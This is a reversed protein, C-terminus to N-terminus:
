QANQLHIKGEIAVQCSIKNPSPVLAELKGFIEPSDQPATSDHCQRAAAYLEYITNTMERNQLGVPQADRTKM